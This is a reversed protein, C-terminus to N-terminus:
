QSNELYQELLPIVSRFWRIHFVTKEHGICTDTLMQGYKQGENTLHWHLRKEGRSNTQHESVQLGLNLLAQNIEKGTPIKALQLREGLLQGLQTPSMPVDDVVMQTSLLKKGEEVAPALHPLCRAIATLKVSEVLEPKIGLNFLGSFLASIEEISSQTPPAQRLSPEIVYSSTRRISPLVEGTVWKRFRKAEPKRSRLVLNYLGSENVTLLKQEGGPTLALVSGKEDEDLRRLVDGASKFGLAICIDQAIWEPKDATGTVRIQNGEFDFISLNSM